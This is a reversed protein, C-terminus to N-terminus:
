KLILEVSALRKSDPPMHLGGFIDHNKWDQWQTNYNENLIYLSLRYPEKPGGEHITTRVRTNIPLSFAKAWCLGLKPKDVALWIYSGPEINKTECVVNIENGTVTGEVPSIIKGRPSTTQEVTIEIKPPTTMNVPELESSAFFNTSYQLGFILLCMVILVLIPTRKPKKQMPPVPKTNKLAQRLADKIKDKNM